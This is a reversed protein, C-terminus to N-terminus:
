MVLLKHERSRVVYYNPSLILLFSIPLAHLVYPVLLAAYLTKTPFGSPPSWESSGPM